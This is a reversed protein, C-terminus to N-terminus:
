FQLFHEDGKRPLTRRGLLSLALALGEKMIRRHPDLVAGGTGNSVGTGAEGSPGGGVRRPQKRLPTGYGSGGEVDLDEEGALDVHILFDDDDDSGGDADDSAGIGDGGGRLVEEEVGRRQKLITRISTPKLTRQYQSAHAAIEAISRFGFSAAVGRGSGRVSVLLASPDAAAGGDKEGAKGTTVDHDAGGAWPAGNGAADREGQLSWCAEMFSVSPRVVEDLWFPPLIPLWADLVDNKLLLMHSLEKMPHTVQADETCSIVVEDQISPLFLYIWDEPPLVYRAIYLALARVVRRPHRIFHRCLDDVTLELRWVLGMAILFPSADEDDDFMSAYHVEKECYRLVAQVKQEHQELATLLRGGQYRQRQQDSTPYVAEVMADTLKSELGSWQEADLNYHSRVLERKELIRSPVVPTARSGCPYYNLLRCGYPLAIHSNRLSLLYMEAAVRSHTLYCLLFVSGTATTTVVRLTHQLSAREEPQLDSTAKVRMFALHIPPPPPAAGMVSSSSITSSEGAAGAITSVAPPIMRSFNSIKKSIANLAARRDTAMLGRLALQSHVQRRTATTCLGYIESQLELIATQRVAWGVSSSSSDGTSLSASHGATSISTKGEMALSSSENQFAAEGKVSSAVSVVTSELIHSVATLPVELVFEPGCFVHPEMERKM